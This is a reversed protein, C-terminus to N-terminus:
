FILWSKFYKLFIKLKIFIEISFQRKSMKSTIKYTIYFTKCMQFIFGNKQLLKETEPSKGKGEM